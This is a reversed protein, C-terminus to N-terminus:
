PYSREFETFGRASRRRRLPFVWPARVRDPSKGGLRPQADTYSSIRDFSAGPALDDHVQVLVDTPLEGLPPTELPWSFSPPLENLVEAGGALQVFSGRKGVYSVHRAAAELDRPEAGAFAVRLDGQYHIIERYAITPGFPYEDQAIADALEKARKEAGAAKSEFISAIKVLAGNVVLRPPPEVRVALGRVAAFLRIGADLGARRIEADVLALKWSYPTPVLCAKGATSTSLPLKLSGLSTPRFSLVVHTM